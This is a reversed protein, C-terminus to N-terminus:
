FNLQIWESKLMESVMEGIYEVKVGLNEIKEAINYDEACQQCAYVENSVLQVLDMVQAKVELASILVRESPGWFFVRIKEMWKNKLANRVYPIAVDTIIRPDGSSIIMFLKSM